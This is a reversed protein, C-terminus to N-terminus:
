PECNDPVRTDFVGPVEFWWNRDRRGRDLRLNAVANQAPAGQAIAAQWVESVSCSPPSNMLEPCEDVRGGYVKVGLATVSVYVFACPKNPGTSVGIPLSQTRVPVRAVFNYSAKFDENLTLDITGDAFVGAYSDYEHSWELGPYFEEVLSRAHPVFAEADFRDFVLPPPDYRQADGCADAIEYYEDQVDVRWRGVWTGLAEVEDPQYHIDGRGVSIEAGLNGAKEWVEDFDCQPAGIDRYKECNDANELVSGFYHDESVYVQM